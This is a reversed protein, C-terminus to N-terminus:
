PESDSSRVKNTRYHVFSDSIGIILPVAPLLAYVAGVAAGIPIISDPTRKAFVYVMVAAGNLQFATRALQSLVLGMTTPLGEHSILAASLLFLCGLVIRMPTPITFLRFGPPSTVHTKREQPHRPDMEVVLVVGNLREIRLATFLGILVCAQAAYLPFQLQFFLEATRRFSLLSQQLVRPTVFARLLESGDCGDPLTVYGATVLRYLLEGPKESQRIWGVARDPLVAAFPGGLRFQIIGLLAALSFTTLSIYLVLGRQGIREKPPLVRTVLVPLLAPILLAAGIAPDYGAVLWCAAPAASAAWSLWEEKHRVLPCAFLPALLACLLGFAPVALCLGSLVGLAIVNVMIQAHRPKVTIGDM